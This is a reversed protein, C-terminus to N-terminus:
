HPVYARKHVGRLLELEDWAAAPWGRRGGRRAVMLDQMVAAFCEHDGWAYLLRQLAHRYYTELVSAQAPDGPLPQPYARQHIDRLLILEAWADAPWDRVQGKSDLILARFALSASPKGWVRALVDVAHPAVLELEGFIFPTPRADDSAQRCERAPARSRSSPANDPVSGVAGTRDADYERARANM